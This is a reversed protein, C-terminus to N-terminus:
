VTQLFDRIGVAHRALVYGLCSGILIEIAKSRHGLGWAAGAFMIVMVVGADFVLMVASHMKEFGGMGSASAVATTLLNYSIPLSLASALRMYKLNSPNIKKVDIVEVENSPKKVPRKLVTYNEKLEDINFMILDRGM